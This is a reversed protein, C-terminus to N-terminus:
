KAIYGPQGQQAPLGAGQISIHKATKAMRVDDLGAQGLSSRLVLTLAVLAVSRHYWM